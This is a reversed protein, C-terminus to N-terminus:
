AAAHMLSDIYEVFTTRYGGKTKAWFQQIRPVAMAAGTRREWANFYEPDLNKKQYQVFVLENLEFLASLYGEFKLSELPTLKEGMAAKLRIEALEGSYSEARFQIALEMVSHISADRTEAASHRMQLAVYVLSVFVGISGAFDGIAGIADWNIGDM